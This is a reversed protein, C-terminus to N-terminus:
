GVNPFGTITGSGSVYSGTIQPANSPSISTLGAVISYNTGGSGSGRVWIETVRLELPPSMTAPPVEFYFSGTGWAGSTFGVQVNSTAHHNTVAFWRSVRWFPHCNVAGSMVTAAQAWPLGSVQYEPVSNYGPEPFKLGM